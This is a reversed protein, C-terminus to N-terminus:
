EHLFINEPKIDRHLIGRDHAEALVDAVTAAITACERLPLPGNTALEQAVTRGQLLEMILFAIGESSVGSDLVRVANPHNLRAPTAGQRLFRRLENASDNGAAPRFVKIAIPYDLILHRGRFVAGFGGAGLEEDLRYKGDLVTGPLARAYAAFVRDAQQQAAILDRNAAELEATRARVREELETFVRVNEMAVATTDALAQLLQVEESTPEHRTAWYNGIAGIPDLTRIPVMVLSKVFTRRYADHPVRQDAYIDEIVAAQRHLMAWGSVCVSMPFRQG